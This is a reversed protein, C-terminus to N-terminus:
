EERLAVLPHDVGSAGPAPLSTTLMVSARPTPDTERWLLAVVPPTIHSFIGMAVMAVNGM